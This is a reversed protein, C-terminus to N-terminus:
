AVAVAAPHTVGERDAAVDALKRSGLVPLLSAWTCMASPVAAPRGSSCRIGPRPVWGHASSSVLRPDRPYEPITTSSTFVMRACLLSSRLASSASDSANVALV